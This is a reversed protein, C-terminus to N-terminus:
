AGGSLPFRRLATYRPGEPRLESRYLVLANARWQTTTPAVELRVGAPRSPRLRGLTVHGRFPKDAASLGVAQAGAEALAALATLAPTEATLCAVARPRRASPFLRPETLNLELAGPADPRRLAAELWATLADYVPADIEGLFRITLHLNAEATWVVHHAWPAERLRRRHRRLAEQANVDPDLALFARM